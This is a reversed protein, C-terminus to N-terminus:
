SKRLRIDNLNYDNIRIDIFRVLNQKNNKTNNKYINSINGFNMDSIDPALSLATSREINLNNNMSGLKNIEVKDFPIDLKNQTYLPTNHDTTVNTISPTVDYLETTDTTDDLTINDHQTSDDTVNPISTTVDYSETTYNNTDDLTVNSQYTSETTDDLTVNFQYTSETTDNDQYSIHENTDHLTQNIPTLNSDVDVPHEHVRSIMSLGLVNDIKNYVSASTNISWTSSPMPTPDTDFNDYRDISNNYVLPTDIFDNIYSKNHKNKNNFKRLNYPHIKNKAPRNTIIYSRNKYHKSQRDSKDSVPNPLIASLEAINIQVNNNLNPRYNNIPDINSINLPLNNPYNDKINNLNPHYNNIPEINSINLQVNNQYNDNINNINPHYINIPEINSINLQVNNQYNDNINNINPHYINIPEINSINLQVNNQYNDNIPEINSINLPVDNLHNDNIELNIRSKKRLNNNPNNQDTTPEYERDRKISQNSISSTDVTTSMYLDSLLVNRNRAELLPSPTPNEHIVSLVRNRKKPIRRISKTPIIQNRNKPIRRIRNTPISPNNIIDSSLYSTDDTTSMYIDNDEDQYVVYSSRSPEMYNNTEENLNIPIIQNHNSRISHNSIDSSVNSTDYTNIHVVPSSRLPERYNYTENTLIIPIIQNNNSRMSHNSIDSSVNSTDYTNIHVVPSSRLPERYNYTENTLIIPIIQNNNSRM